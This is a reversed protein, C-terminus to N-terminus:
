TLTYCKLAQEGGVGGGGGEWPFIASILKNAKQEPASVFQARGPKQVSPPEAGCVLGFFFLDHDLVLM